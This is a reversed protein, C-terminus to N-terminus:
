RGARLMDSMGYLGAPRGIIWRAAQLAGRAFISRDAARHVLEIREGDGLFRVAHEGAVDGGRACQFGIEGAHREGTRARAAADGDALGRARAAARGLALATGSPADRKWRHHLEAIEIDFQADLSAAAREVLEILLNVGVSFNAAHCVAVRRAAAALAEDAARDLGTTGSVCPIDREAAWAASARCLAPHSFDIVVDGAAGAEFLADRNATGVVRADPDDAVLEALTRGIRGTAGSLLIKMPM